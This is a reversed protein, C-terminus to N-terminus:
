WGDLLAQYCPTLTCVAAPVSLIRVRCTAPKGWRPVQPAPLLAAVLPVGRLLALLSGPRPDALALIAPSGGAGPDTLVPTATLCPGTAWGLCPWAVARLQITQGVWGTPYHQSAAVVAGVSYVQGAQAGNGSRPSDGRMWGLTVVLALALLAGGFVSIRRRWGTTGAGPVMVALLLPMVASASHAM